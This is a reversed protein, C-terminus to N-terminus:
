DEPYHAVIRNGFYSFATQYTGACIEKVKCKTCEEAFTGTNKEVEYSLLPTGSDDPSAYSSYGETAGAFFDWYCPDASCLPMHICYVHRRSGNERDLLCADFMEELYPALEPFVVMQDFKNEETLGCYDISCIQIDVQEDFLRNITEYFKKLDRYNLRTICHKVTVHIGGKRLNQLGRITRRFSGDTQNVWEHEAGDQSHLTTIVSLRETEALSLLRSTFADDSFRESNSLVTVRIGNSTITHLLEGLYPHLTPEGGSIVIHETQRDKLIEQVIRELDAGPILPYSAEEKSCPCFRCKQNCAYGIAIYSTKMYVGSKRLIQLLKDAETQNKLLTFKLM